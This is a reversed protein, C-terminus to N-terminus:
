SDSRQRGDGGNEVNEKITLMTTKWYFELHKRITDTPFNEITLNLRTHNEIPTLIFELISYNEQKDPLRSVSSLHSYSLRREKEYKLVIGKNEFKTHHFGRILVPTEIGWSAHVELGMEPDGMWKTMREPVTLASWVEAPSANITVANSFGDMM